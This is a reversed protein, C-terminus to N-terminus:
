CTGGRFSLLSVIIIFAILDTFLDYSLLCTDNQDASIVRKCVYVIVIDVNPIAHM